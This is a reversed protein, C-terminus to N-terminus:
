TVNLLVPEDTLTYNKLNTITEAVTPGVAVVHGVAQFFLCSAAKGDADVRWQDLIEVAVIEGEVGEIIGSVRPKPLEPLHSEVARQWGVLSQVGVDADACTCSYLFMM